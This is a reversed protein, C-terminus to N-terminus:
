MADYGLECPEGLPEEHALLSCQVYAQLAFPHRPDTRDMEGLMHEAM